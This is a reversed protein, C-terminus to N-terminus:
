LDQLQQPAQRVEGLQTTLHYIESQLCMGGDKDVGVVGLLCLLSRVDALTHVVDPLYTLMCSCLPHQRQSTVIGVHHNLGAVWCGKKYSFTSLRRTM